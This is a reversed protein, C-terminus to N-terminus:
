YITNCKLRFEKTEDWIRCSTNNLKNPLEYQMMFSRLWHALSHQLNKSLVTSLTFFDTGPIFSGAASNSKHGKQVKKAWQIFHLCPQFKKMILVDNHEHEMNSDKDYVSHNTKHIHQKYWEQSAQWHLSSLLWWCIYLAPVLYLWVSIEHPIKYIVRFSARWISM